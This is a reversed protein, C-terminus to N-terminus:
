KIPQHGIVWDTLEKGQLVGKSEVMATNSTQKEGGSGYVELEFSERAAIAQLFVLRRESYNANPFGCFAFRQIKREALHEFAMQVVARDNTEILPFGKSHHLGRLDVAPINLRQIQESLAASDARAIIGDAHLSELWDPIADSLGREEHFITWPQRTRIYRVIGRLLGRGYARSSEILLVVHPRPMKERKRDEM